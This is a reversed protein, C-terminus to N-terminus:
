FEYGLAGLNKKIEAELSESASIQDSLEGVLREMKEALPEDDSTRAASGVYTGPTLVHNYKAIEALSAAKCFGKVDEYDGADQEGRWAHYTAM